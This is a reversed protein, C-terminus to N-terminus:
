AQRQRRRWVCLGIAGLGVILAYTSPEPIAAVSIAGTTYLGNLNWVLGESLPVLSAAVDNSFSGSITANGWNFLQLTDGEAFSYSGTFNLELSGALSITAINDFVIREYNAIDAIDLHFAATSDQSFDVTGGAGRFTLMSIGLLSTDLKNGVALESEAGFAIDHGNPAAIGTGSLLAGTVTLAGSGTASGTTNTLHLTGNSVNTGGSYTNAAALVMGGAGTKNLAGDGSITGNWLPSAGSSVQFTGSSSGLSTTHAFTKAATAGTMILTGGNLTLPGSTSGLRSPDNISIAGANITTGGSYSNVGSLFLTSTASNQVIGVVGSGDSIAGSLTVTGPGAGNNTILKTGSSSASLAGALTFASATGARVDLSDALRVALPAALEVGGSTSGPGAILVATAGNNNFTLTNGTATSVQWRARNTSTVDGLLLQGLVIDGNVNVVRASTSTTNAASFDAIAGAGNAVTANQWRATDNWNSTSSVSSFVGDTAILHSTAWLSLAALAAAKRCGVSAHIQTNNM